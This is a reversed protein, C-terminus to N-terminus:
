ADAGTPAIDDAVSAAGSQADSTRVAPVLAPGIDARLREKSLLVSM